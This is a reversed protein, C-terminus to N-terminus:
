GGSLASCRLEFCFLSLPLPAPHAHRLPLSRDPACLYRRPSVQLPCSPPASLEGEWAFLCAGGRVRRKAGHASSGGEAGGRAEESSSSSSSRAQESASKAPHGECTAGEGEGLGEEAEEARGELVAYARELERQLPASSLTERIPDICVIDADLWWGGRLVLVLTLVHCTRSPRSIAVM